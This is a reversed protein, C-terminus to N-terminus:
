GVAANQGVRSHWANSAVCLLQGGWIIQNHSVRMLEDFYLQDPKEDWLIRASNLIRGALAGGGRTLRDKKLRVAATTNGTMDKRNPNSGMQMNPANIGYPPDVIALDYYKDPTNRMLEMCDGHLLQVKSM